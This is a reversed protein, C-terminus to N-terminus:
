FWLSLFPPTYQPRGRLAARRCLLWLNWTTAPAGSPAQYYPHPLHILIDVITTSSRTQKLTHSLSQVPCLSPSPITIKSVVRERESTFPVLTGHNSSLVMGLRCPLTVIGESSRASGHKMFMGVDCGLCRHMASYLLTEHTEKENENHESGSSCAM